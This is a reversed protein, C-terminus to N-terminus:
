INLYYLKTGLLICNSHINYINIIHNPSIIIYCMHSNNSCQFARKGANVSSEYMSKTMTSKYLILCSLLFLPIIHYFPPHATYISDSLEAAQRIHASSTVPGKTVMGLFDTLPYPQLIFYKQYKVSKAIYSISLQLVFFQNSKPVHTVSKPWNTFHLFHQSIM